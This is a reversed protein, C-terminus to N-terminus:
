AKRRTDAYVGGELMRSPRDWAPVSGASFDVEMAAQAWGHQVQGRLDSFRERGAMPSGWGQSNLAKQVGKRSANWARM